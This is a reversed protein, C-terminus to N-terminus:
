TKITIPPTTKSNLIADPYTVAPEISHHQQGSGMSQQVHDRDLEPRGLHRVLVTRNWIGKETQKGEDVHGVPGVQPELSPRIEDRVMQCEKNGKITQKETMLDTQHDRSM